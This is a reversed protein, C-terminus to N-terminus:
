GVSLCNSSRLVKTKETVCYKLSLGESHADEKELKPGSDGYRGNTETRGNRVPVRVSVMVSMWVSVRNRSVSAVADSASM